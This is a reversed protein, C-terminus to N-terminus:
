DISAWSVVSGCRFPYVGPCDDDHRHVKPGAAEPMCEATLRNLSKRCFDIALFVTSLGSGLSRIFSTAPPVVKGWLSPKEGWQGRDMSWPGHEFPLSM